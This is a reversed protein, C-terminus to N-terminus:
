AAGSEEDEVCADIREQRDREPEHQRREKTM